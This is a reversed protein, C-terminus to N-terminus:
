RTVLKKLMKFINLLGGILFITAALYHWLEGSDIAWSIFGYAILLEALGFIVFGHKTKHWADLQQILTKQKKKVM